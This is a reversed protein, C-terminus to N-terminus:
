QGACNRATRGDVCLAGHWRRGARRTVVIGWVHAVFSDVVSSFLAVRSPCHGTGSRVLYYGGHRVDEGVYVANPNNRMTEALVETMHLRMQRKHGTGEDLNESEVAMPPHVTSAPAAALPASVRAEMDTRSSLKPEESAVDFATEVRTQV